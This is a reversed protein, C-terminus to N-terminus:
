NRMTDAAAGVGPMVVARAGDLDQARNTVRPRGGVREIARVVSRLNGAGYDLVLVDDDLMALNYRANAACRFARAVTLPEGCKHEFSGGWRPAAEYVPSM